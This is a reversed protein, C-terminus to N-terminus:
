EIWIISNGTNFENDEWLTNSPDLIWKGDVVFKYRYKGKDLHISTQWGAATKQMPYTTPSWDNFDGALSVTRADNYGNLTFTHNPQVVMNFYNAKSKDWTLISNNNSSVWKDDVKFTYTYNGAGISYPLEWGGNIKKMFLENPKWDNFSGLLTVQSATTFGELRFIFPKGIRVVSNYEGFENPLKEKNGPDAMWHGDVIYRYTHTGDALYLPLQWGATTKTLQLERDNWKNFSGAVYIKKAYTFDHSTFIYNTKYYVSNDNGRGDNEMLKNDYDVQWNGDIIFKYWYKGPGLRIYAIWGSDTRQMKQATPVWNNFSGALMVQRANTNNRLFFTVISDNVAFPYKNKFINIGYQIKQSVAAFGNGEAVAKDTITYHDAPNKFADAGELKKSITLLIDNNLEINWGLKVLTDPNNTALVLPLNLEQLCYQKVFESLEASDTQKSVSLYMSGKKITYKKIQAQVATHMAVLTLM